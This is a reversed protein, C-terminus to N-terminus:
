RRNRRYTFGQTLGGSRGNVTVTVTVAGVSGVPTTATLMTSDVVMVNTAATSGIMVTAGTDFNTGVLTVATGGVTPGSSPLVSTVTPATADFGRIPVIVGFWTMPTPPTWTSTATQIGAETAAKAEVVFGQTTTIGTYDEAAQGDVFCCPVEIAAFILDDAHVTPGNTTLTARTEGTTTGVQGMADVDEFCASIPSCSAALSGAKWESIHLTIYRLNRNSPTMTFSTVGAPISPCYWVQPQEFDGSGEPGGNANTRFPSHPSAVFCSETAHLNTGLTATVGEISSTCTATFCWTGWAIIANGPAPSYNVQAHRGSTVDIWASGCLTFRGIAVEQACTSQGNVTVALGGSGFLVLGGLVVILISRKM